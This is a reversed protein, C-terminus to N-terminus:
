VVNVLEGESGLPAAAVPAFHHENWVAALRDAAVGRVESTGPLAREHRSDHSGQPSDYGGHLPWGMGGRARRATLHAGGYRHASGGPMAQAPVRCRSEDPSRPLSMSHEAYRAGRSSSSTPCPWPERCDPVRLPWSGPGGPGRRCASSTGVAAPRAGTSRAWSRLRFLSGRRACCRWDGSWTM